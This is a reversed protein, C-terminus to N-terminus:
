SSMESNRLILCNESEKQVVNKYYLYCVKKKSLSFYISEYCFIVSLLGILNMKKSTLTEVTDHVQLFMTKAWTTSLDTLNVRPWSTDSCCSVVPLFHVMFSVPQVINGFVKVYFIQLWYFSRIICNRFAQQLCDSTKVCM